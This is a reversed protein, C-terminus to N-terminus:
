VLKEKVNSPRSMCCYRLSIRLIILWLYESFMGHTHQSEYWKNQLPESFAPYRAIVRTRFILVPFSLHFLICYFVRNMPIELLEDWTERRNERQKRAESPNWRACLCKVKHFICIHISHRQHMVDQALLWSNLSCTKNETRLSSIVHHYLYDCLHICLTM